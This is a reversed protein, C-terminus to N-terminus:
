SSNLFFKIEDTIDINNINFETILISKNAARISPDDKAVKGKSTLKMSAINIQSGTGDFRSLTEGTAILGVENVLSQIIIEM